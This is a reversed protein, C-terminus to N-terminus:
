RAPMPSSHIWFSGFPRVILQALEHRLHGSRATARNLSADEAVQLLPPAIAFFAMWALSHGPAAHRAARSARTVARAVVRKEVARGSGGYVICGLCASISLLHAGHGDLADEGLQAGLAAHGLLVEGIRRIIDRRSLTGVLKGGNVVPVKKISEEALVRCAEDVCVVHETAVQKVNLELMEELRGRMDTDYM